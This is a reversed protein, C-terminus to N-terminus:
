MICHSTDVVLGGGEGLSRWAGSTFTSQWTGPVSFIMPSWSRRIVQDYEWSRGHNASEALAAETKSKSWPMVTQLWSMSFNSESAFESHAGLALGQRRTSHEATAQNETSAKLSARCIADGTHFIHFSLDDLYWTSILPVVVEPIPSKRSPPVLLRGLYPLQPTGLNSEHYGCLQNQAVDHNGM